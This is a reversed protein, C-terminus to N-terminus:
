RAATTQLRLSPVIPVPQQSLYSSGNVALIQIRYAANGVWHLFQEAKREDQKEEKKRSIRISVKGFFPMHVRERFCVLDKQIRVAPRGVGAIEFSERECRRNVFNPETVVWFIGSV